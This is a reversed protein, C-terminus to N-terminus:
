KSTFYKVKIYLATCFILEFAIFVFLNLAVNDTFGYSHLGVSLLNVGFWALVVIINVLSAYFAFDLPKALGTIRLHTCLHWMVILLAGNKQDWSLVEGHNDAWIGKLNNM